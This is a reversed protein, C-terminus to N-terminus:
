KENLNVHLFASSIDFSEIRRLESALRSHEYQQESAILMQDIKSQIEPAPLLIELDKIESINISPQVTGTSRGQMYNQVNESCLYAWLVRPKLIDTKTRAIVFNASAVLPKASNEVVACKLLTGRVSIIVDGPQLLQRNFNTSAPLHIEGLESTIPLRQDVVDKVQVLQARFSGSRDENAKRSPNFGLFIDAVDSLKSPRSSNTTM